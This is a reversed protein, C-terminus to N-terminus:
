LYSSPEGFSILLTTGVLTSKYITYVTNRDKVWKEEAMGLERDRMSLEVSAGSTSEFLRLTDQCVFGCKCHYIESHPLIANHHAHAYM